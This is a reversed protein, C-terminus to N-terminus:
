QHKVLKPALYKGTFSEKCRALDEHKGEFVVQGGNEGGEPGIDIM